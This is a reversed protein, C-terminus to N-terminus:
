GGSVPSIFVVRDGQDLPRDWHALEDNVAPRIQEETFSFRYASALSRYLNRLSSSTVEISEHDTGRQERLSAFYTLHIQV